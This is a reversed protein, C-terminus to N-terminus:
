AAIPTAQAYRPVTDAQRMAMTRHEISLGAVGITQDRLILRPSITVKLALIMLPNTAAAAISAV